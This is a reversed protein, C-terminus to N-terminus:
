AIAEQNSQIQHQPLGSFDGFAEVTQEKLNGSRQDKPPPLHLILSIRCLKPNCLEAAAWGGVATLNFM